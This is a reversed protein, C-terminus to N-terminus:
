IKLFCIIPIVQSRDTKNVVVIKLWEQERAAIATIGILANIIQINYHEPTPITIQIAIAVVNMNSYM